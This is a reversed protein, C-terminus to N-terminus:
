VGLIADLAAEIDGLKDDVLDHVFATTAVKTSDDTISQTTATVQNPFDATQSVTFVGSSLTGRLATTMLGQISSYLSLNDRGPTFTGSANGYVGTLVDALNAISVVRGRPYNAVAGGSTLGTNFESLATTLSVAYVRSTDALLTYGLFGKNMINGSTPNFRLGGDIPASLTGATFDVSLVGSALKLGNAVTFTTGPTGNEGKLSELWEEETGIFGNDVAVQYASEGNDGKPGVLSALWSTEDGTYGNDVAVEYASKGDDGDTGPSGPTGELSALWEAESGVFGNDVAIQYASKGASGDEGDQGPEGQLSALWEAETGIFGADVAVQYASKGPQGDDGDQGPQGKLSELWEQETGAFGEEVAIEYASKGDAGAPGRGGNASVEVVSPQPAIVDVSASAPNIVEITTCNM